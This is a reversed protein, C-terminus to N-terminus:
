LSGSCTPNLADLQAEGQSFQLTPWKYHFNDVLGPHNADTGRQQNWSFHLCSKPYMPGKNGASPIHSPLPGLGVVMGHFTPSLLPM